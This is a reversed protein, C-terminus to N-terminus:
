KAKNVECVYAKQMRYSEDVGSVHGLKRLTLRAERNM